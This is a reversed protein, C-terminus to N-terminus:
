SAAPDKQCASWEAMRREMEAMDVDEVHTALTWQHGFPDAIKGSRDGYFQNEVAMVQTGGAALARAFAADVDDLYIMLGTSTGGRTKPSLINMDPWEEGLMVHSDGIKFEAHAVREGMPLLMVETAGFAAKYFALAAHGDDVTIYPTISHYGEPIKKVTM